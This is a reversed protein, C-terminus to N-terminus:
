KELEELIWWMQIALMRAQRETLCLKYDGSGIVVYQEGDFVGHGVLLDNNEKSKIM